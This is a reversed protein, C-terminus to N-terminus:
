IAQALRGAYATVVGVPLAPLTGLVLERPANDLAEAVESQRRVVADVPIGVLNNRADEPGAASHLFRCFEQVRAEGSLATVTEPPLDGLCTENLRLFLNILGGAVPRSALLRDIVATGIKTGKPVNAQVLELEAPTPLAKDWLASLLRTVREPQSGLIY